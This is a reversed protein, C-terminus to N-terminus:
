AQFIVHSGAMSPLFMSLFIFQLTVENGAHLFVAVAFSAIDDAPVFDQFATNAGFAVTIDQRPTSPPIVAALAPCLAIM